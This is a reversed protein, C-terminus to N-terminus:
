DVRARPKQIVQRLLEGATFVVVGLLAWLLMRDLGRILGGAIAWFMAASIFTFITSSCKVRSKRAM